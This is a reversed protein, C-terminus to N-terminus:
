GSNVAMEPSLLACLREMTVRAGDMVVKEPDGVIHHTESGTEGDLWWGIVVTGAPIGDQEDPGAVGTTAIAVDSELLRAVGAAMQVSAEDSVVNDATVGLVSRKVATQYAVVSGCFWESAGDGTALTQAVVGATFSEACAITREGRSRVARDVLESLTPDM